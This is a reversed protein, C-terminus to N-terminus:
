FPFGKQFFASFKTSILKYVAVCHKNSSHVWRVCLAGHCFFFLCWMKAGIATACQATKALSQITISRTSAMLLRPIWKEIWRDLTCPFNPRISRRATEWCYSRLRHLSDRCIQFVSAPYDAYARSDQMLTEFKGHNAIANYLIDLRRLSPQFLTLISGYNLRQGKDFQYFIVLFHPGSNPPKSYIWRVGYFNVEQLVKPACLSTWESGNKSSRYLNQCKSDASPLSTRLFIKYLHV